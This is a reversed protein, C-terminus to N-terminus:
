LFERILFDYLLWSEYTMRWCGEEFVLNDALRELARPFVERVKAGYLRVFDAECVGASTRLGLYFTEAMAKQRSFIELRSAPDEGQELSHFYHGLDPPSAWREGWSRALFSHAGAGFGLCPQRRWYILNHRCQFGPRAYNSIEYHCYGHARLFVHADQYMDACAEEGPLILKGQSQLCAFDTGEEVTLGYLSLHEPGFALARELDRRWDERTQGPLGFILDIGINRYGAQRAWSLSNEVDALTHLRGLTEIFHPHFSQVGLSLRNVGAAWYGELKALNLTGPNAELSIEVGETLGWLHDACRLIEEVEAPELLSPTGGGFFVTAFPEPDQQSSRFLEMHAVLCKVYESIRDSHGALSFFDCYPCKRLCFPIHLYLGTM